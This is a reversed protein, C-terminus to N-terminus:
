SERSNRTLSINRFATLLNITTGCIYVYDVRVISYVLFVVNAVITIPWFSRPIFSMKRKESAIWQILFRLFFLFSGFLGFLTWFDLKM